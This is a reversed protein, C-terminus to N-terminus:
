GVSLRRRLETLEKNVIQLRQKLIRNEVQLTTKQLLLDALQSEMKPIECERVKRIIQNLLAEDSTDLKTFLATERCYLFM